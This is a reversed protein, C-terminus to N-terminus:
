SFIGEGSHVPSISNCIKIQPQLVFCLSISCLAEWFSIASLWNPNNQWSVGGDLLKLEKDLTMYLGLNPTTAPHRFLMNQRLKIWSREVELSVGQWWCLPIVQGLHFLDPTTRPHAWCALTCPVLSPLDGLAEAEMGWHVCSSSIGNGYM